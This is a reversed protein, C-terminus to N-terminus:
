DERRQRKGRRAKIEDIIEKLRMGALARENSDLPDVIELPPFEAPWDHRPPVQQVMQLPNGEGTALYHPNVQLVEAIQAIKTSSHQRQNEIDSLTTVAIKTRKALAPRSIDRVDRWFILREGLHSRPGPWNKEGVNMKSPHRFETVAHRQMECVPDRISEPMPFRLDVAQRDRMASRRASGIPIVNASIASLSSTGRVVRESTALPCVSAGVPSTATLNHCSCLSSQPEERELTPQSDDTM